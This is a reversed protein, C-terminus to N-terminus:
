QSEQRLGQVVHLPRADGTDITQASGLQTAAPFAVGTNHIDGLTVAQATFTPSAATTSSLAVSPGATQSWAYTLPSPGDSDSSATGNLGVTAGATM